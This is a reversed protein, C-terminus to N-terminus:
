PLVSVLTKAHATPPKHRLTAWFPRRELIVQRLMPPLDGVFFSGSEDEHIYRLKTFAQASMDLQAAFDRPIPKGTVGEIMRWMEELRPAHANWLQEIRNRSLVSLGRFLAKLNHTEPVTGTEICHLCKFYLESAFVSMVMHPSALVSMLQPDNDGARRLVVYAASYREANMYIKLPDLKPKATEVM